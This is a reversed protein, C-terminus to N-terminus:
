APTVRLFVPASSDPVADSAPVPIGDLTCALGANRSFAERVLNAPAFVGRALFHAALLPLALSFLALTLSGARPPGATNEQHTIGPRLGKVASGRRMAIGAVGPLGAALALRSGDNPIAADLDDVPRGDLFFADLKHEVVDLPLQFDELLVQHLPLGVRCAVTVGHLFLRHWVFAESHVELVPSPQM